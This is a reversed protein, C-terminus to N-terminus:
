SQDTRAKPRCAAAALVEGKELLTFLRKVLKVLCLVVEVVVAVVVLLVTQDDSNMPGEECSLRPNKDGVWAVVTAGAM